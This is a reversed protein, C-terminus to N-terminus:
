GIRRRAGNRACGMPVARRRARPWGRRHRYTGASPRRRVPHHAPQPLVRAGVGLRFASGKVPFTGREASSSSAARGAARTRATSACTAAARRVRRAAASFEAAIQDFASRASELSLEALGHVVPVRRREPVSAARRGVRRVVAETHGGCCSSYAIARLAAASACCRGPRRMSRPAGPRRNPERHRRVGSRAESPVLDYARQPNSRQLVYTRACVAQAQLRRPRGRRRCRARSSATCINSRPRRRQHRQRRCSRSSRKRSLSRGDFTFGDGGAPAPADGPGLLVRLAPSRSMMAPDRRGAGARSLPRRAGRRRRARPVRRAAIM